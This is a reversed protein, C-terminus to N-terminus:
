RSQRSPWRYQLSTGRTTILGTSQQRRGLQFLRRRGSRRSPKLLLAAPGARCCETLVRAVIKLARAGHGPGGEDIRKFGDVNAVLLISSVARRRALNWERELVPELGSRSLLGTLQDRSEIAPAAAAEEATARRSEGGFGGGDIVEFNQSPTSGVNPKDAM